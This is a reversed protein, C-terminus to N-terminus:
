GAAFTNEPARVLSVGYLREIAEPKTEGASPFSNAATLWGYLLWLYGAALPARLERVGPLLGALV